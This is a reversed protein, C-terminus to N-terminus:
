ITIILNLCEPKQICTLLILYLFDTYRLLGTISSTGEWFGPNAIDVNRLYTLYLDNNNTDKGSFRVNFQSNPLNLGSGRKVLSSM